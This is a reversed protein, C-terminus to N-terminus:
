FQKLDAHQLSENKSSHFQGEPSRYIERGGVLTLLVRADKIKDPSISFLNDSLMILDAYKGPVISGRNAEVFNAYAGNITYGRIATELDITQDPIWGGEPKGDLGKRTLATYIGILPDMEAVNWDSGFALVAGSDRLSRFPWAYKSREPGVAAAWQGTIDPACHRPQMCAVIGSGHYRPIDQPSLCEDHIVQHRSDRRGNVRQAHEIADLATRIGRDGTAHIFIQFGLRDIRAAVDNFESPAWLLEGTAGPRDTYPALMAATHPEIVDDSYLKVASIRLKDDNKFAHRVQSFHDIQSAPTHQRHYLAVQLRVPLEGRQRARDYMKLHQLTCQPEIVTTIGFGLAMAFNTQLSQYEQADTRSPLHKLYEESVGSSLGILIGTPEGTHRDKQVEPSHNSKTIGFAHLAARNVWITHGDYAVLFAPRGGTLGELDSSRPLGGAGFISYNWGEAQIWKLDPREGSFKRVKEQIESLSQAGLLSLIDPDSGSDIHNHSDIFGPLILRGGADIVKAKASVRGIADSDDGVWAIRDGKIAVAQAWPRDKELTYVRANRILLDSQEQVPLTQNGSRTRGFGARELLAIASAALPYRFFERRSVGPSRGGM